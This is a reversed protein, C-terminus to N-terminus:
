HTRRTFLYLDVCVHTLVCAQPLLFHRFAVCSVSVDWRRKLSLSCCKGQVDPDNMLHEQLSDLVKQIESRAVCNNHVVGPRSCYDEQPGAESLLLELDKSIDPLPTRWYLFHSFVDESNGPCAWSDSGPYSSIPFDSNDSLKSFASTEPSLGTLEAGASVCSEVPNEAPGDPSSGM